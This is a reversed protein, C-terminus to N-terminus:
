QPEAPTFSSGCGCSKEAQPNEFRFGGEMLANSYTVHVGSLYKLSEEDSIIGALVGGSELLVDAEARERVDVLQMDYSRRLPQQAVSSM